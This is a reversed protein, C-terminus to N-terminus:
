ASREGLDLIDVRLALAIRQGIRIRPINIGREYYDIQKHSTGVRRALEAKTLGASLRVSKLRVGFPAAPRAALCPLCLALGADTPLCAPSRIAAACGACPVSRVQPPRAIL